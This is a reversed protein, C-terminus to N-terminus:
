SYCSCLIVRWLNIKVIKRAVNPARAATSPLHISNYLAKNFKILILLLESHDTLFGLVVCDHALGINVTFFVFASTKSLRFKLGRRFVTVPGLSTM